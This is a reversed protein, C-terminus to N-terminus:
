ETRQRETNDEQVKKDSIGIHERAEATKVTKKIKYYDDLNMYVDPEEKEEVVPETEEVKKEEEAQKV